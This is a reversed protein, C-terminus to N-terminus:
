YDLKKHKVQRSYAKKSKHVQRPLILKRSSSKIIKLEDKPSIKIQTLM